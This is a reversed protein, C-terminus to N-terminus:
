LMSDLFEASRLKRDLISALFRGLAVAGASTGPAFSVLEDFKAVSLQALSAASTVDLRVAGEPAEPRCKRCVIGGRSVVFYVSGDDDHPLSQCLRCHAFDLGYGAACLMKLEYACRMAICAPNASLTALAEILV